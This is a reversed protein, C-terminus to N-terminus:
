SLAKTPKAAKKVAKKATKKVTKKARSKRVPKPETAAKAKKAVRKPPFTLEDALLKYDDIIKNASEIASLRAALKRLRLKEEEKELTRLTKEINTGM